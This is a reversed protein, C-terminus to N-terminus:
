RILRFIKKSFVTKVIPIMINLQRVTDETEVKWDMDKVM